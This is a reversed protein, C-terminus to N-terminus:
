VLNDNEKPQLEDIIFDVVYTPTFFAGNLKRDNAPILLELCNELNKLSEIQLASVAFYIESNPEFDKLLPELIPSENGNLEKMQLFSYVLHKEIEEIKHSSVLQNILAKNM